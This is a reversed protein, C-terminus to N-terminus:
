PGLNWGGFAHPAASFTRVQSWDAQARGWYTPPALPVNAHLVSPEARYNFPMQTLTVPGTLQNWERHAPGFYTNPALTGGPFFDTPSRNQSGSPNQLQWATLRPLNTRALERQRQLLQQLQRTEVERQRQQPSGTPSREKASSAPEVSQAQPQHAPTPPRPTEWRDGSWRHQPDSQLSDNTSGAGRWLPQDDGATTWGPFCCVGSLFFVVLRRM